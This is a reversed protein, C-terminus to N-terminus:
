YKSKEVDTEESLWRNGEVDEGHLKDTNDVGECAEGRDCEAGGHSACHEWIAGVVLFADCGTAGEVAVPIVDELAVVEAPVPDLAAIVGINGAVVTGADRRRGRNLLSRGLAGFALLSTQSCEVAAM